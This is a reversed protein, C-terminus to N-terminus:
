PLLGDDILTIGLKDMIRDALNNCADEPPRVYKELEEYDYEYEFILASIMEKTEVWEEATLDPM